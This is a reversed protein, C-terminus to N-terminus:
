ELIVTIAMDHELEGSHEIAKLQPELYKALEKAANVRLGVEADPDVIIDALFKHPDAGISECYERLQTRFSSPQKNPIGKRSGGGTKVGKAM